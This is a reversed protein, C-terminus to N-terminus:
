FGPCACAELYMKYDRNMNSIADIEDGSLAFDSLEAYEKVRSAKKSTFIPVVGTDIHWRMVIQGVNKHYKEAIESLVTSTRIDEHFKCLPSYAQVVIGHEHCFEIERRCTRLPNREIQVLEPQVYWNLFANLQRMRVNCIGIHHVIGSDRLESFADWTKELYEPVPWHVLLADLYELQMRGMVDTVYGKIQDKGEMMQWADVKTQVYVDSRSVGYDDMCQALCRGLIEETGYSPATDFGYIGNEFASSIVTHLGDFDKYSSAGTGFMVNTKLKNETEITM